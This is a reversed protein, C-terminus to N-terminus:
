KEKVAEGNTGEWVPFTQVENHIHVQRNDQMVPRTGKLAGIVRDTRDDEMREHEGVSLEAVLDSELQRLDARDQAYEIEGHVFDTILAAPLGLTCAVVAALGGIFAIGTVGFVLLGIILSLLLLATM